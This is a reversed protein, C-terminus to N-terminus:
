ILFLKAFDNEAWELDLNLERSKPTNMRVNEVQESPLLSLLTVCMCLPCIYGLHLILMYLVFTDSSLIDQDM